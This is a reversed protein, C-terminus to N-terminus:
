SYPSFKYNELYSSRTTVYTVFTNKLKDPCDGGGAGKLILVEQPFDIYLVRTILSREKSNRHSTQSSSQRGEGGGEKDLLM